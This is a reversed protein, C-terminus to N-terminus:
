KCTTEMAISMCVAYLCISALPWIGLEREFDSYHIPPQEGFLLDACRSVGTFDVTKDLEHILPGASPWGSAVVGLDDCCRM